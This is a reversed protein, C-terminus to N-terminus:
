RPSRSASSPGPFSFRSTTTRAPRRRSRKTRRARANAEVTSRELTTLSFEAATFLANGLTLLVIALLSLLTVILNM